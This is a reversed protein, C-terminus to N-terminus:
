TQGDVGPSPMALLRLDMLAHVAMAVLLSGTALYVVGLLAGMLTTVLVGGVGQYVHAFGFIVASVAVLTLGRLGFDALLRMFFGRFILEEGIGASVSVAAYWAKERASRPILAAIDGVLKPGKGARAALSQAILGLALGGLGGIILPRASGNVVLGLGGANLISSGVAAFALAGGAVEGAVTIRYERILASRDGRRLSQKLQRYDYVGWVTWAVVLVPLLWNLWTL